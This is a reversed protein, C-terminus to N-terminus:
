TNGRLYILALERSLRAESWDAHQTRLASTKWRRVQARLAIGLRTREDSGMRRWAEIQLPHPHSVMPSMDCLRELPTQDDHHAREFQELDTPGFLDFFRLDSGTHKVASRM